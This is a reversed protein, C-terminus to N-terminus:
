RLKKFYSEADEFEESTGVDFLAQTPSVYIHLKQADILPQTIGLLDDGRRPDAYNVADRNLILLGTLVTAREEARTRYEQLRISFGSVRRTTEDFDVVWHHYLKDAVTGIVTASAGIREHIELAPLIQIGLRIVDAHCVLVTNKDSQKVAYELRALLVLSM